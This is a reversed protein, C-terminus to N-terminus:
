EGDQTGGTLLWEDLWDRRYRVTKHDLRVFQPGTGAVRRDALTRPSMRLYAAAEDPTFWVQPIQIAGLAIGELIDSAVQRGAAMAIERVTDTM